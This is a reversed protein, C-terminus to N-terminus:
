RSKQRENPEARSVRLFTNYCNKIGGLGINALLGHCFVAVAVEFDRRCFFCIGTFCADFVSFFGPKRLEHIIIMGWLGWYQKAVNPRQDLEEGVMQAM